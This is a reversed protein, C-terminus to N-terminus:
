IDFIKTRFLSEIPLFGSSIVRIKILIEVIQGLRALTGLNVMNPIQTLPTHSAAERTLINTVKAQNTTTLITQLLLLLFVKFIKKLM